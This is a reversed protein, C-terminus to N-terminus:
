EFLYKANVVKGLVDDATGHEAMNSDTTAGPTFDFTLNVEGASKPMIRFTGLIGNVPKADFTLASFRVKGVTNDVKNLPVDTFVSGATVRDGVVTVRSPEFLIIVDVGDVSKGMSDILIGIPYSQGPIYTFTSEDPSLTMSPLDESASASLNQAPEYNESNNRSTLTM